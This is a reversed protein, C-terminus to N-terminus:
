HTLTLILEEMVVRDDPRTDRLARDTEFIRVLALELKKRSFAAVTQQVQEARDRWMRVGNKTFYSLIQASSKLGAEHAVLALRFQTGLFTLALPLYEGERVLTDLIDLSRARDNRGLAAVLAFITTERADPVLQAIDDPTVKRATGAYLTLKEVEAAIRSADAGLAEVLSGIEALGIQLGAQRALQQALQRAAEVSYPRFEVQAPIVSFYKQVRELRTKDEGEFEWRAADFVLVTGPSPDKVYAALLSEAGKTGPEEGEDDDAAARGRPLATEAGSAWILRRTAFLSLSMADDLVSALPTEDMDLHIFGQERDEAGLVADLLARRCQDRQYAEAGLFLYAPEPRQQQLQRLFQDPTM